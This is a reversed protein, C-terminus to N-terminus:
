DPLPSKLRTREDFFVPIGLVVVKRAQSDVSEIRGTIEDDDPKGGSKKPKEIEVEEALLAGDKRLRGEAEVRVGPQVAGFRRRQPGHDQFETRGDTCVLLGLSTRFTQAAPDCTAVTSTIQSEDREGPLFKLESARLGAQGNPRGEVKIWQGPQLRPFWAAIGPPGAIQAAAPLNWCAAALAGLLVGWRRGGRRHESGVM